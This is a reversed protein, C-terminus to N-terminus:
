SQTQPGLLVELVLMIIVKGYFFSTHLLDLAGEELRVFTCTFQQLDNKHTGKSDIMTMVVCLFQGMSLLDTEPLAKSKGM